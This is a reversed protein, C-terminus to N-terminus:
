GKKKAVLINADSTTRYVKIRGNLDAAEQLTRAGAQADPRATLPAVLSAFSFLFLIVEIHPIGFRMSSAVLGTGKRARCDKGLFLDDAANPLSKHPRAQKISNWRRLRRKRALKKGVSSCVRIKSHLSCDFQRLTVLAFYMLRLSRSCTLLLVLACLFNRIM